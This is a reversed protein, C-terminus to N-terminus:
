ILAVFVGKDWRKTEKRVFVNKQLLLEHKSMGALLEHLRSFSSSKKEEEGQQCPDQKYRLCSVNLMTCLM